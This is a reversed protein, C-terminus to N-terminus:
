LLAKREGHLETHRPEGRSRRQGALGEGVLGDHDRAALLRPAPFRLPAGPRSLLRPVATRGAPRPDAVTGLDAHTPGIQPKLPTTLRILMIIARGSKEKVARAHTRNLAPIRVAGSRTRAVSVRAAGARAASGQRPPPDAAVSACSMAASRPRM